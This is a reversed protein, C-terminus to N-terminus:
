LHELGQIVETAEVPGEGPAGQSEQGSSGSSPVTRAKPYSDGTRPKPYFTVVM